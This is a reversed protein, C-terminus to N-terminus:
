AAANQLVRLQYAMGGPVGSVPGGFGCHVGPRQGDADLECLM